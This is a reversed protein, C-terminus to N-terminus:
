AVSVDCRLRRPSAEDGDDVGDDAYRQRKQVQRVDAVEQSVAEPEEVLLDAAVDAAALLALAVLLFLAHALLPELQRLLAVHQEVLLM